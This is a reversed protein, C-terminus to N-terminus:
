VNTNKIGDVILSTYHHNNIRFQTRVDYKLSRQIKGHKTDWSNHIFEGDAYYELKKVHFGADKLLQELDTHNLYSKHGNKPPKVKQVYKLDKRNKDPVAIRIRGGNELYKYCNELTILIEETDLHEFVHEALINSIEGKKFCKEWNKINTIDLVNVNSSIWSNFQTNAAGVVLKIKQNTYRYLNIQFLFYIKRISKKIKKIM